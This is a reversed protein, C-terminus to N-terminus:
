ESMILNSVFIFSKLPWKDYSYDKNLVGIIWLKKYMNLLLSKSDFHLYKHKLMIHKKICKNNSNVVIDISKFSIIRVHKSENDM